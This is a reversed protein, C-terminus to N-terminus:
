LRLGDASFNGQRGPSAFGECNRKNDHLVKQVASLLEETNYPKLLLAAPQLWPYVSFEWTPLTGTAMIVPLAMRAAHIRKLLEVGNVEPMNNDTIMLDYNVLQLADWALTGDKAADVLYGARILVATNLRRIDVDDEVVLIRQRLNPPCQLQATASEGAPLIANVNM